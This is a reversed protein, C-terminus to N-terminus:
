MVPPLADNRHEVDPTRLYFGIALAVGVGVLWASAWAWAGFALGRGLGGYDEALHVFSSLYGAAVFLSWFLAFYRATNWWPGGSRTEGQLLPRSAFYFALAFPGFLASLIAWQLPRPDARKKADVFVYAGLVLQLLFWLV